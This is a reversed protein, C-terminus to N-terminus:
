NPNSTTNPFGNLRNDEWQQFQMLIVMHMFIAAGMQLFIDNIVISILLIRVLKVSFLMAYNMPFFDNATLYQRRKMHQLKLTFSDLQFTTLHIDNQLCNSMRM